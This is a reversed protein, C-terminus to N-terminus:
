SHGLVAHPTYLAELFACKEDDLKVDLAAVRATRRSLGADVDLSTTFSAAGPWRLAHRPFM